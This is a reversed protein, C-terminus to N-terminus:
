DTLSLSLSLEVAAAPMSTMPLSTHTHLETQMLNFSEIGAETFDNPRHKLMGLTLALTHSRSLSHTLCALSRRSLLRPFSSPLINGRRHERERQGVNSDTKEAERERGERPTQSQRKGTM